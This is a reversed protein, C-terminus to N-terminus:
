GLTAKSKLKRIVGCKHNKGVSIIQKSFGM